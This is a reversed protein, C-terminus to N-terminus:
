SLYGIFGNISNNIFFREREKKDNNLQNFGALLPDEALFRAFCSSFLAELDEKYSSNMEKQIIEKWLYLQEKHKQLNEVANDKIGFHGYCIKEPNYKVLKDISEVSTELFFKPPTAPRLYETNQNISLSVGGAEGAFLYRDIIFSVHHSSHGPTIIPTVHMSSFNEADVLQNKDVPKIEGYAYAKDKLTKVSGKWLREPNELHTIGAKHCVIPTKRFNAAIDGVGGSHDMHIHTLLIYDINTVNIKKLTNLLASATSSPGPDVLFTKDGLYVWAGIFNDFGRIQPVLEILFLDDYLETIKTEM